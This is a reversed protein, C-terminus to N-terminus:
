HAKLIENKRGLFRELQSKLADTDKTQCEWVIETSWGLERLDHQNRIDRAVNTDFKAQWYAARTKPTTTRACEPHRHWFCGHVFIVKKRGPFVLDPTGPLDRRHLRFRYGQAHLLRRVVMEPRSDKARVRSMLKRRAPDVDDFIADAM